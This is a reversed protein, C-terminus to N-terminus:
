RDEFDRDIRQFTQASSQGEAVLRARFREARGTLSRALYLRYLAEIDSRELWGHELADFADTAVETHLAAGELGALHTLLLDRSHRYAQRGDWTRPWYRDEVQQGLRPMWPEVDRSALANVLLGGYDPLDVHREMVEDAAGGLSLLAKTANRRVSAEGDGMLGDLVPLALPDQALGAARAAAVRVDAESDGAVRALREARERSSVDPLLLAAAARVQPDPDSLWGDLQPLLGHPHGALAMLAQARDRGETREALALVGHFHDKTVWNVEELDAAMIGPFTGPRMAELRPLLPGEGAVHSTTTLFALVANRVQAHDTPLVSMVQRTTTQRDFERGAPSHERQRSLHNAWKVSRAVTRPESAELGAMLWRWVVDHVTRGKIPADGDVEFLGLSYPTPLQADTLRFLDAGPVADVFLLYASGPRLDLTRPGCCSRPDYAPYQLKGSSPCTGALSRADEWTAVLPWEPADPNFAGPASVIRAVCVADAGATLDDISNSAPPQGAVASTMWLLALM